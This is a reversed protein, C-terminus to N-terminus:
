NVTIKRLSVQRKCTMEQMEYCNMQIKLAYFKSVNM